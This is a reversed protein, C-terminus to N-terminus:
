KVYFKYNLTIEIEIITRKDALKSLSQNSEQIKVNKPM